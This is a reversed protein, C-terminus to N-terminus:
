RLIEEFRCSNKELIRLIGFRHKNKYPKLQQQSNDNKEFNSLVYGSALGILSKVVTLSAKEYYGLANTGLL